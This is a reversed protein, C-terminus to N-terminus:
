AISAAGAVPLYLPKSPVRHKEIQAICQVACVRSGPRPYSFLRASSPSPRLSVRFELCLSSEELARGCLLTPQWPVPQTLPIPMLWSLLSVRFSWSLGLLSVFFDTSLCEMRELRLNWSRRSPLPQSEHNLHFTGQALSLAVLSPHSGIYMRTFQGLLSSYVSRSWPGM